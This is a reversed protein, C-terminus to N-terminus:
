GLGSYDNAKGENATGTSRNIGPRSGSQRTGHPKQLREREYKWETALHARWNRIQIDKSDRGGRGVAKNWCKEVFDESCGVFAAHAKAENITRPFGPPLEVPLEPQAAGVCEINHSQPQVQSHCDHAVSDASPEGIPQTMTKGNWKTNAGKKGGESRAQRQKRSKALEQEIRKHTWRGNAIDFFRSLTLRHSLWESVSLRTVAALQEDDDPLAEGSTWYHFILLMYAGHQVTRLHMTDRLYDGVYFPMWTDGKM